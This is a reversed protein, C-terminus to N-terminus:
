TCVQAESKESSLISVHILKDCLIIERFLDAARQRSETFILCPYVLGDILMKRLELLKGQESGCYRLEQRVVSVAANSALSFNVILLNWFNDTCKIRIRLCYFEGIM